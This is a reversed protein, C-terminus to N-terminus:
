SETSACPSLTSVRRRRSLSSEAQQRAERANGAVASGALLVLALASALLVAMKRTAM